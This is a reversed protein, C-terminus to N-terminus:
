TRESLFSSVWDVMYSLVRSALLRARLTSANANDFGAKIDLFLSSVELKPRQLTKIQYMLTLCPASSSRRPLSGCQNLHLLGESRAITSLRVTMVWELIKSITKRLIIIRFSSPSDYSVKGPKDLIVGNATKLSPPHDGFAVLPSPLELIIAPNILKVRKWVPYPVGDPGPALSPTSKSHALKIEEKTLPTASPNRKVRGRSPLPDKSPFLHNLLANNVAVPNSADPLSPCRPTKRTAVRQKATWINNPSTKALFDAWYTAKARKIAKFYGLKSQRVISYSDPTRFQKARPYPKTFEKRLTTLLPTWWGKSRPSRRSRPATGEIAMTLTSLASSFWQDLQNPSPPKPPPPVLRGKLRGTLGPWDAEQWRPRPKYYHSTPPRM